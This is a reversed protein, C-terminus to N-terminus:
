FPLLSDTLMPVAETVFLGQGPSKVKYFNMEDEHLPQLHINRCPPGGGYGLGAGDRGDNDGADLHCIYLPM